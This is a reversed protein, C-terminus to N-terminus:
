LSSLSPGLRYPSENLRCISGLRRREETSPSPTRMLKGELGPPPGVRGVERELTLGM